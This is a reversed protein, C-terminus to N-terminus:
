IMMAGGNIDIVAGTIYAADDSVLFAVLAGIEDPEGLRGVPIAVSLDLDPPPAGLATNFRGPCIANSTVGFKAGEMALQRSMAILGAKSAPYSVDSGPIAIRAARSSINVIRGWGAAKMGPLAERALLFPATLNVDMVQRWEEPQLDQIEPRYLGIGANNVLVDIRGLRAVASRVAGVAEAPDALDRVEGHAQYGADRLERAVDEVTASRDVCAVSLGDRALRRAIAAGLGQAAGTVLAVRSTVAAKEMGGKSRNGVV